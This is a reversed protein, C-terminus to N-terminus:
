ADLHKRWSRQRRLSVNEEMLKSLAENKRTLKEELTNIKRALPATEGKAPPGVEAAGNVFLQQKSGV